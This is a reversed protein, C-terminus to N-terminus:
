EDLSYKRDSINIIEEDESFCIVMKKSKKFSLILEKIFKKGQKDLSELPDDIIVINKNSALIRAYHVKKHIGMSIKNTMLTNLDLNSKKLADNLGISNILRGVEDDKLNPNGLKINDTISANLCMCHQPVYAIQDRWWSISLKDLNTDDILVQGADPKIIGLIIKCLVTKGSSNKGSINSIIENPFKLSLNRFIFSSNNEFNFDLNNVKIDNKIFSMRLGNSKKITNKFYDNTVMFYNNINKLNIISKQGSLSIQLARSAFINFGILTGINLDGNVVYTSGVGIIVVSNVVILFHNFNLNSNNSKNILDSKELQQNIINSFNFGIYNFINISKLFDKKDGLDKLIGTSHKLLKKDKNLFISRQKLFNLQFISAIILVVTFISALKTNLFFLILIILFAFFLDVINSQNNPALTKSINNNVDLIELINKNKIVKSDIIETDYIGKLINLKVKKLPNMTIKSFFNHRMNRFIYELIAVLIAGTVLFFLTGQLGFTIYRNFIHIIFIPSLLGMTIIVLSLFFLVGFGKSEKIIQIWFNM